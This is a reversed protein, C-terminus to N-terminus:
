YIYWYPVFSIWWGELHNKNRFPKQKLWVTTAKHLETACRIHSGMGMFYIIIYNSNLSFTGIFYPSCHLVRTGWTKNSQWWKFVVSIFGPHHAKLDDSHSSLRCSMELEWCIRYSIKAQNLIFGNALKTPDVTLRCPSPLSIFSTTETQNQAGSSAQSTFSPPTSWLSSLVWWLVWWVWGHWCMTWLDALFCVHM